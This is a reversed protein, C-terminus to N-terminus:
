DESENVVIMINNENNVGISRVESELLKPNLYNMAYDPKMSGIFIEPFIRNNKYIYIAVWQDYDTAVQLLDVLTM